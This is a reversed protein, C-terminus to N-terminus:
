DCGLGFFALITDEEVWRVNEGAARHEAAAFTSSSPPFSSFSFSSSSSGFGSCAAGGFGSCVSPEADLIFNANGDRGGRSLSSRSPHRREHKAFMPPAADKAFAGISLEEDALTTEATSSSDRLSLRSAATRVRPSMDTCLM